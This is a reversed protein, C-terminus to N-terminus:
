CGCFMLTFCPTICWQCAVTWCQKLTHWLAPSQWKSICVNLLWLVNLYLLSYCMMPMGWNLMTETYTVPCPITVELYLCKVAVFCATLAPLLADNAHWLEANNWHLDCPLTTVELYLCEVVVFCAPLAPLLADNAHWLEANNWHLDCPLPNDSRSVFM